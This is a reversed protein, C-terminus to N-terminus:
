SRKFSIFLLSTAAAFLAPLPLYLPNSWQPSRDPLKRRQRLVNIKNEKIEHIDQAIM